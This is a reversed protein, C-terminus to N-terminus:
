RSMLEEYNFNTGLAEVVGVEEDGDFGLFNDDYLIIRKPVTIQQEVFDKGKPTIGWVGREEGPWILDWHVLLAFGGDSSTNPLVFDRVHYTPQEGFQAKRYLMILRAAQTGYMPRHYEKCRQDCVRCYHSEKPIKRLRQNEERLAQIISEKTPGGGNGGFFDAMYESM